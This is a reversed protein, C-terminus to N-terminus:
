GLEFSTVGFLKSADVHPNPGTHMRATEFVPALGLEGVLKQAASNIEPADLFVADGFRAHASTAGYLQRAVCVDDAALPGIKWGDRCKRV